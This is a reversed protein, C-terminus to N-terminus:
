QEESWTEVRAPESAKRFEEVRKLHNAEAEAKASLGAVQCDCCMSDSKCIPCTSFLTWDNSM